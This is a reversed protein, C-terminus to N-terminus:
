IECRLPFVPILHTHLTHSLTNPHPAGVCASGKVIGCLEGCRERCRGGCKGCRGPYGERVGWCMKGYRGGCKGMGKGVDGRVGGSGLM